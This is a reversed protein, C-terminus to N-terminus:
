AIIKTNVKYVHHGHIMTDMTFNSRSISTMTCLNKNHVHYLFYLFGFVKAFMEIAFIEEPLSKQLM